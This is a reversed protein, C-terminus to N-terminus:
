HRVHSTSPGEPDSGESMRESRLDRVRRTVAAIVVDLDIGEAHSVGEIAQAALEMAMLILSIESREGLAMSHPLVVSAISSAECLECFGNEADPHHELLQVLEPKESKSM